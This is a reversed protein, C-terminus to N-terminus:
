EDKQGKPKEDGVITKKYLHGSHKHFIVIGEPSSFTPVAVSGTEKLYNLTTEINETTFMGEFLIPVVYCCEPTYPNNMWKKVNFLYFRKETLGYNRNIGQGMWEGYHFGTGLSLLQEKNTKVWQAFGHNDNHIEDQISGWLWRTRSGAFINMDFDIYIIANSGDIKETITCERSYRFIKQFSRFEPFNNIKEM